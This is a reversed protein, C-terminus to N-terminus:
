GSQLCRELRDLGPLPCVGQALYVVDAPASAVSVARSPAIGVLREVEAPRGALTGPGLAGARSVPGLLRTAVYRAGQYDLPERLCDEFALGDFGACRGAAVYVIGPSGSV